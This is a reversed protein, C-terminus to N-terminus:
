GVSYPLIGKKLRSSNCIQVKGDKTANMKYVPTTINSHIWKCLDIHEQKLTPDTPYLELDQNRTAMGSKFHTEFMESLGFSSNSVAAGQKTIQANLADLQDQIAAEEAAKNEEAM